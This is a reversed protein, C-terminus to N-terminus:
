CRDAYRYCRGCCDDHASEHIPPLFLLSKLHSTEVPSSADCPADSVIIRADCQLMQFLLQQTMLAHLAPAQNGSPSMTAKAGAEGVCGLQNACALVSCLQVCERRLHLRLKPRSADEYALPETAGLDDRREPSGGIRECRCPIRRV